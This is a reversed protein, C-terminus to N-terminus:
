ARATPRRARIEQEAALWDALEDGPAFGRREARYYAAESILQFLEEDDWSEDRELPAESDVVGVGDVAPPVPRVARLATTNRSKM